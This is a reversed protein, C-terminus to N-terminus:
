PTNSAVATPVGNQQKLLMRILMHYFLIGVMYIVATICFVAAFSYGKLRLAGFIHSSFFWCGSGLAQQIASTLERNKEGVFNMTFQSILPNAMNMLPQRLLYAVLAVMVALSSGKFYETLAMTLLAVVALSQTLTVSIVYGYRRLMQPVYMASITVILTSLAGLLSFADYDLGHVRYFFINVFPIMLGAGIAVIVSPILVVIMRGLEQFSSALAHAADGKEPRPPLKEQYPKLLLFFGGFGILSTMVLISAESVQFPAYHTVLYSCIGLVSTTASWTIFHLAIAETQYRPDANRMLFPIFATQLCSISAGMVFNALYVLSDYRHAVAYVLLLSALPTALTTIRFIPLIRRSRIYFGLPLSAVMAAFFRVSTISAVEADGYGNKMLYFNFVLFAAANILQLFFEAYIVNLITRDLKRYASLWVFM